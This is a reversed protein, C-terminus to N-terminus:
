GWRRLPVQHPKNNKTREPADILTNGEDIEHWPLEAIESRRCGTLVLLKIISSIPHGLNEAAQWVAKLESLDLVRQRKAEPTPRVKAAPSITLVEREILWNFMAKIVNLTRNAM